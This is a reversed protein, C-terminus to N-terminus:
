VLSTQGIRSIRAIAKRCFFYVFPYALVCVVFWAFVAHVLPWGLVAFSGLPDVYVLAAIEKLSMRLHPVGLVTEGLRLFPLILIFQLPFLLHKVAQLAIHNLRFIFGLLLAMLTTCGIQPYAAAAVGLTMSHALRRQSAGKHLQERLREVVHRRIYTRPNWRSM